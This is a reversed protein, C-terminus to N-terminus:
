RYDLNVIGEMEILMQNGIETMFCQKRISDIALTLASELTGNVSAGQRIAAEQMETNSATSKELYLMYSLVFAAHFSQMAPREERRIQSFVPKSHGSSLIPDVSQWLMLINHGLEHTIFFAMDSANSCKPFSRFITGRAFHSSYGRNINGGLPIIFDIIKNFLQNISKSSSLILNVSSEYVDTNNSNSPAWLVNEGFLEDLAISGDALMFSALNAIFLDDDILPISQNYQHYMFQKPIENLVPAYCLWPNYNDISVNFKEESYKITQERLSSNLHFIDDNLHDGVFYTKSM